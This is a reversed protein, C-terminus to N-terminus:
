GYQIFLKGLNISQLVARINYTTADLRGFKKKQTIVSWKNQEM